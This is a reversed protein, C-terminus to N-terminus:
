RGARGEVRAERAKRVAWEVAAEPSDASPLGLDAAPPEGLTVVARGIKRAVAIESLTGWGGGIAVVAEGGKVVLVNRTEGMGTPIAVRIWRNASRADDGPLIGVTLGGAEAAGRAAAEMTGGLGGCVLVAGAEALARGVGAALERQPQSADGAGVVSIRVPPDAGGGRPTM